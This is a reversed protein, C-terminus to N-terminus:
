GKKLTDNEPNSIYEFHWDHQAACEKAWTENTITIELATETPDAENRLVINHVESRALPQFNPKMKEITHLVKNQYKKQSLWTLLLVIVGMIVPIQWIQKITSLVGIEPVIPTLLIFGIGALLAGITWAISHFRAIRALPSRDNDMLDPHTLFDSQFCTECVKLEVKYDKSIRYKKGFLHSKKHDVRYYMRHTEFFDAPSQDCRSCRQGNELIIATGQRNKVERAPISIKIPM